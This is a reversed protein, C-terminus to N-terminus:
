RLAAVTRGTPVDVLHLAQCRGRIPEPHAALVRVFTAPDTADIALTCHPVWTGPRYLSVLDSTTAAVAAHVAAHLGLLAVTPAVGLFVVGGPGPFVGVHGLTLEPLVLGAVAGRLRGALGKGHHAVALSVHPRQPVPLSALSPCGAADLAAWLQRVQAEAGADLMMKVAVSV